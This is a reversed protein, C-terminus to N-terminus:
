YTCPNNVVVTIMSKLMQVQNISLGRMMEAAELINKEKETEITGTNELPILDSVVINFFLCLEIIKELSIGKHGSEIHKIYSKNEIGLKEALELQTLNYIKRFHKIRQGIIKRVKISDM